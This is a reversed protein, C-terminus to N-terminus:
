PGRVAWAAPPELCSLVTWFASEDSRMGLVSIKRLLQATRTNSRSEAAAILQAAEQVIPAGSKILHAIM